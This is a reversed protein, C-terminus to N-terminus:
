SDHAALCDCGTQQGAPLRDDLLSSPCRRFSRPPQQGGRPLLGFTFGRVSDTPARPPPSRWPHHELSGSAYDSASNVVLTARGTAVCHRHVPCTHRAADLNQFIAGTPALSLHFASANRLLDPLSLRCLFSSVPARVQSLCSGLRGCRPQICSKRLLDGSGALRRCSTLQSSHQSRFATYTGGPTKSSAKFPM